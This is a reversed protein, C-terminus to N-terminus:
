KQIDWPITITVATGKGEESEVELLASGKFFIHLRQYVNHLGIATEHEEEEYIAQTLTEMRQKDMGIGNDRVCIAGRHHERDGTTQIWIIGQTIQSKLGHSICNEVLPQLILNPIKVNHFPEDLDLIFKIRDGFRKEQICLYNDLAEIEERLTVAHNLYDLGYRLLNSTYELLTATEMDQNMYASQMMMNMTNFLFHPNIQAQLTKYRLTEIRKSIRLNEVTRQQLEIKNKYYEERNQHQLLIIAVMKNYVHEWIKLEEYTYGDTPLPSVSGFGKEATEKIHETFNQIPAALSVALADARKVWIVFEVGFFLLYIVFFLVVQVVLHHFRQGSLSLFRAYLNQYSKKIFELVEHSDLYVDYALRRIGDDGSSNQIMKLNDCVVTLMENIDRGERLYVPDDFLNMVNEFDAKIQTTHNHCIKYEEPSLSIAYSYFYDDMEDLSTYFTNLGAQHQNDRFYRYFVLTIILVCCFVSAFLYSGNKIVYRKIEGQITHKKARKLLVAM